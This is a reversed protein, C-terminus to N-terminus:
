IVFPTRTFTMPNIKDFIMSSIKLCTLACMHHAIVDQITTMMQDTDGGLPTTMLTITTVGEINLIMIRDPGVQPDTGLIKVMLPPLMQLGSTSPMTNLNTTLCCWLQFTIDQILAKTITTSSFNWKITLRKGFRLHGHFNFKGWIDFHYSPSFAPSINMARMNKQRNAVENIGKNFKNHATIALDGPPFSRDPIEIWIFMPFEDPVIHVGPCRRNLYDIHVEFECQFTHALWEVCREIQGTFGLEDYNFMDLLNRDLAVLVFKPLFNKKNLGDMLADVIHAMANRGHKLPNTYLGVLNFMQYIFPLTNNKLYAQTKM